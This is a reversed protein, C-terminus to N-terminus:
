IDIYGVIWKLIVSGLVNFKIIMEDLLFNSLTPICGVGVFYIRLFVTPWHVSWHVQQEIM